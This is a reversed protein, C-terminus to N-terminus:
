KSININIISAQQADLTGFHIQHAQQQEIPPSYSSERLELM